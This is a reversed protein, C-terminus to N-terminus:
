AAGGGRREGSGGEAGLVLRAVALLLVQQPLGTCYSRHGGM